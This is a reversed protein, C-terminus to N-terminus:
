GNDIVYVRHTIDRRIHDTTYGTAKLVFSRYSGYQRLIDRVVDPAIIGNDSYHFVLLRCRASELIEHLAKPARKPSNFDSLPSIEPVGSKGHVHRWRGLALTEPLHYYGSYCRDNYPPDLYLIDYERQRVLDIANGFFSQGSPGSAPLLLDFQFNKAAKRHWKKLYAYYTGATNAVTDASNILSALLFAAERYSLLSQQRWRVIQKWIADIQAANQATFFRRRTAFERVFWGRSPELNNLSLALETVNTKGTAKLLRRFPPTRSYEIRAIQFYHAFLLMDGSFVQYGASKFHAGVTAIGGFPDCFTGHPVRARILRQIGELTSAKSGFYRM